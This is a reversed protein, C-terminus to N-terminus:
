GIESNEGLTLPVYADPAPGQVSADQGILGDRIKWDHIRTRDMVISREVACDALSCRDGIATYPGITAREM